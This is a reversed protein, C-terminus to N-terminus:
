ETVSELPTLTLSSVHYLCRSSGLFLTAEGPVSWADPLALRAADGQYEIATQDNCTAKVQGRTVECVIKTPPGPTVFRGRRDTFSKGDLAHIRGESRGIEVAFQRGQHVLGLLIPGTGLRQAVEAEIRYSEPPEYPITVRGHEERATFLVGNRIEWNGAVVHENLNILKLLDVSEGAPAPGGAIPTVAGSVPTLKISHIHFRTSWSGIMLAQEDPIVWDDNMSEWSAEGQFQLIQKDDIVLRVSDRRVECKIRARRGSTLLHGQQKYTAVHERPAHSTKDVVMQTIPPRYRDISMHCQRGQYVLGIALELFGGLRTAEVELDYEEPPRVPIQMRAFQTMPSVLEGGVRRWVGVVAHENPDLMALLDVAEGGPSPPDVPAPRVPEPPLRGPELPTLTMSTIRYESNNAGLALQAPDPVKWGHNHADWRPRGNYRLIERGDCQVVFGQSQVICKIVSPRGNILYSAETRLTVINQGRSAATVACHTGGWGDIVVHLPAGQYILGIALDASGSARMAELELTYTEPPAFPVQLRSLEFPRAVLSGGGFFGWQGRVAHRDTDILALLDVPGDDAPAAVIEPEPSEVVPTNVAVYPDGGDANLEGFGELHKQIEVKTLGSVGPLVRRYWMAARARQHDAVLGDSHEAQERWVDALQRREALDAPAQLEAAAIERLTEDDGAALMPLGLQWNGQSFAFYNGAVTAAAADTPDERLKEIADSASRYAAFIHSGREKM